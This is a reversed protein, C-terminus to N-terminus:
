VILVEFTSTVVLESFMLREEDGFCNVILLGLSSFPM